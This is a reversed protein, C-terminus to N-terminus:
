TLSKKRATAFSERHSAKPTECIKLYLLVKPNLSSSASKVIKRGFIKTECHLLTRLPFSRRLPFVFVGTDSFKLTPLAPPPPPLVIKQRHNIRVICVKKMPSCNPKEFCPLIDFNEISLLPPTSKM